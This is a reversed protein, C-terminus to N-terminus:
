HRITTGCGHDFAILPREKPIIEIDRRAPLNAPICDANERYDDVRSDGQLFSRGYDFISAM